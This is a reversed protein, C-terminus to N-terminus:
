GAIHRGGDMPLVRGTVYGSGLLYDIPRVPRSFYFEFAGVSLDRAIAGAGVTMSVVFALFPFFPPLYAYPILADAFTVQGSRGILGKFVEDQSVYLVAGFAVTAIFGGIFWIKLRWWGMWSMRMLNRVVVQWRSSQPRRTGLYRKYGLDHIVAPSSTETSM